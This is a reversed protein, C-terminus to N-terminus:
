SATRKWRRRTSRQNGKRRSAAEDRGGAFSCTVAPRLRCAHHECRKGQPTTCWAGAAAGCTTCTDDLGSM